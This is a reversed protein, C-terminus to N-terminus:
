LEGADLAPQAGLEAMGSVFARLAPLPRLLLTLESIYGGTIRLLIFGQSPLEGVAAM